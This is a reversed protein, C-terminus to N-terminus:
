NINSSKSKLKITIYKYNYNMILGIYGIIFSRIVVFVTFIKDM